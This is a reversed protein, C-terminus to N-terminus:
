ILWIAPCILKIYHINEKNLLFINRFIQYLHHLGELNELDECISFINLLKKIYNENEIANALKERRGCPFVM